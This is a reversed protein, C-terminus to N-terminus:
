EHKLSLVPNKRAAKITQISVTLLGIILAISGAIIFIFLNLSIKYSFNQLWKNMILYSVPWAIINAVLIWKIFELSLLLTIKNTRAGIAKRIGIEKTRKGVSYSAMGFLGICALFVAIISFYNIIEALRNQARYMNNIWDEVFMYDFPFDPSYEKWKKEIYDISAEIKEPDIKLSIFRYPSDNIQLALAEIKINMPNFYFDKVVGIVESYNSDREKNLIFKKGIAESWGINRKATENIIVSKTLDTSRNDSFDRGNILDIGYFNLFRHDVYAYSIMFDQEIEEDKGEWWGDTNSTISVPIRDSSCVDKILSSQDMDQIFADLNQRLESNQNLILINESHFGLDSNKMYHLQKKVTIASVLFSIILVFQFVVLINRLSSTKKVGSKLDSKLISVPKLSSLFIAPYSSAIISTLVMLIIIPLIINIELYNIHLQRDILNNFVPLFREVIVMAINTAIFVMLFSEGIFQQILQKRSGGTIKRIAIEKARTFSRATALNMYNFCAILLVFFAITSFIYLLKVDFNAGIEFNISSHLHIDTLAQFKFSEKSDEKYKNHIENLIRDLINTAVGEKVKIYTYYSNSSWESMHSLGFMADYSLFSALFDFTFHTNGPVNELIGTITFDYQNNYKLSKGIPDEEGFYKEAAKKTIIISFPTSLATEPNGSLMKINFIKLFDPDTYFVMNDRSLKEKYALISTRRWIRTAYLVEEYEDKLEGALPGPTVCFQRSGQYLMGGNDLYIRYINEPNKHYKDYSIEHSIFVIMLIICALGISLGLLNIISTTLYKIISRIAIKLYNKLM